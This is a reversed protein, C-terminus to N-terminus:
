AEGGAAAVGRGYVGKWARPAQAEHPHDPGTYVKMKKFMARGLKTKPLMRRVAMEVVQEPKKEKVKALSVEKLHGLYGTHSRYVKSEAKKGTLRVKEANVVIVFEGTDVHPTYEPRHKGMLLTAATVALRGLPVGDADLLHWSRKVTDKKAM